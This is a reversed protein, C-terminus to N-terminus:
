RSAAIATGIGYGTTAVTARDSTQSTEFESDDFADLGSGPVILYGILAPGAVVAAVMLLRVFSAM